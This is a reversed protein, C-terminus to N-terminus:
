FRGQFKNALEKIIFHFDHNSGNHFVVPIENPVNFKLNCTSHASGRHKSTSIRHYTVKPSNKNEVLNQLIRKRCFYCNRTDQHLKFEEKTLPLMKKNEFDDILKPHETLSECFKKMYDKGGYLTHKNEIYDFAWIISISYRCPIHESIKTTSFKEPNNAYGDIKKILSQIHAYIFYRMKDSKMYQNFELINDKGSPLEVFIRIKVYKKILNLNIKQELFSIPLSLKKVAFYHCGEKEKNPIM